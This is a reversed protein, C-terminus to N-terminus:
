EVGSSAGFAFGYPNVPNTYGVFISWGQARGWEITQRAELLERCEQRLEQKWPEIEGGAEDISVQNMLLYLEGETAGTLPDSYTYEFHEGQLQADELTCFSEDGTRWRPLAQENYYKEITKQEDM